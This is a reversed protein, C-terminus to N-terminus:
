RLVLLKVFRHGQPTVVELYYLGNALTTGWQDKLSLRLENKGAPVAQFTEKNVFRFAPTFVKIELWETPKQLIVEVYVPGDGTVPNPYPIPTSIGWFATPTFTPTHSSTATPTATSTVTHTNTRTSTPTLTPSLTFTATFTPTLTFTNTSTFSSTETPTASRTWMLTPTSSRTYTGTFTATSSPTQTFSFSPMFTKTSTFSSTMTASSTFTRSWTSTPSSSATTSPTFSLTPTSSPTFTGTPTGSATLTLTATGSPTATWTSTSSPTPTPTSTRTFTETFSPSNTWTFTSSPPVLTSTPSPIPTLTSPPLTSTPTSSFTKTFVTTQTATPSATSSRTFTRTATPTLTPTGSATSSPTRTATKTVTFTVTRTFTGTFTRTPTSTPATVSFPYPFAPVALTAGASWPTASYEFAGVDPASGYYGNTIGPLVMGKDIAGSGAALMYGWGQAPNFSAPLYTGNDILVPGPSASFSKFSGTGVGLNNIISTGAMSQAWSSNGGGGNWFPCNVITNNYVQNNYSPFNTQIGIHACNTVLNHHVLFDSTNNDLYIGEGLYNHVDHIYNYSIETGKGDASFAYTAGVDKTILGANYMINHRIYEGTTGGHWVCYRGTDFLTNSEITHGSGGTQINGKYTAIYDVESIKMDLVTHGMGGIFLGNGASFQISGHIWTCGSGGSIGNQDAEGGYGNVETYHQVYKQHVGDVVCGNCNTFFIGGGFTYLNQITIYSRGNDDVVRKRVAVEVVHSAPSAGNPTWLYLTKTTPDQFWEGAGDLLALSGYLFYLNGSAAQYAASGGLASDFGFNGAGYNTVGRTYSVWASGAIIHVRAGNLNTSPLNPDVVQAATTGTGCTAFNSFYSDVPANPWRAEQMMFGDVFLGWTSVAGSSRYINGQYASWTQTVPDTACLVAQEGPYGSFVIPSGASGSRIPVVTERYVGQRLYVTDGPQAATVARAITQFPSTLSGPDTDIGLPSVYYTASYASGCIFVFFLGSQVARQLLSGLPQVAEVLLSKLHIM